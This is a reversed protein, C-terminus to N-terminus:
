YWLDEQNLRLFDQHSDMSAWFGDHIFTKVEHHNVLKKIPNEEFVCTKVPDLYDLIKPQCVFFGGSITTQSQRKKENFAVVDFDPNFKIEGYQSRPSVGTITLIKQHTLHFKILDKLNINSVGDGYTLCFYPPTQSGFNELIAQRIRFGTMADLGANSYIIQKFPGPTPLSSFYTQIAKAKYGVCLIFKEFGYSVYHQMIHWLIPKGHVPVLAKPLNWDADRIRTGQGGCLIIVPISSFDPMFIFYFLIFYFLFVLTPLITINKIPRHM